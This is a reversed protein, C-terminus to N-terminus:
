TSNPTGSGPTEPNSSNAGSNTGNSGNTSNPGNTGNAIGNQSQNAADRSQSDKRGQAAEAARQETFGKSYTEWTARSWFELRTGSGIIIAAEGERLNAWERLHRPINLRNQPDSGVFECNGFMRQLFILDPNLEDHVDISVLQEEMAEWVPMPYARIHREPGITLVFEEGLKERFKQPVIVRGKEDLSHEFRGWMRLNPSSIAM